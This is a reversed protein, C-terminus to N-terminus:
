LPKRIVATGCIDALVTYGVHHKACFERVAQMAGPYHKNRYDHVLIYGGPSMLPYFVELGSLLPQYLDADLSVFAFKEQELGAFTEPFWGQKVVCQSQFPMISLVAEISTESFDQTASSFNKEREVVADKESFGEFTDFLYLKRDPFARNIKAAFHGKFVGVEACSGQVDLEDIELKALHVTMVRVYDPALEFLKPDAPKDLYHMMSTAIMGKKHLIKQLLAFKSFM